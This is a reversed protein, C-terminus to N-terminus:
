KKYKDIYQDLISLIKPAYDMAWYISDESVDEGHAAKNGLFVLELLSHSISKSLADKRVLENIERRLSFRRDPQLILEALDRIKKEIEIRVYVLALNPKESIINELQKQRKSQKEDIKPEINVIKSEKIINDSPKKLDRLTIKTGGPLSIEKILSPIWPLFALIILSITIADITIQPFISHLVAITLFIVPFLLYIKNKMSRFFFPTSNKCLQTIKM